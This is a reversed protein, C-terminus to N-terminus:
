RLFEEGGGEGMHSPRQSLEQLAKDLDISELGLLKIRPARPPAKKAHESEFGWWSAETFQFVQWWLLAAVALFIAALIVKARREGVASRERAGDGM